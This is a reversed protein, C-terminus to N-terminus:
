SFIQVAGLRLEVSDDTLDIKTSDECIEWREGTRRLLLESRKAKLMKKLTAANVFRPMGFPLKMEATGTVSLDLTGFDRSATGTGRPVSLAETQIQQFKAPALTGKPRRALALQPKSDRRALGMESARGRLSLMSTETVPEFLPHIKAFNITRVPKTRTLTQVNM